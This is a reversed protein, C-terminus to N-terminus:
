IQSAFIQKHCHSVKDYCYLNLGLCNEIFLVVLIMQNILNEIFVEFMIVLAAILPALCEWGPSCPQRSFM